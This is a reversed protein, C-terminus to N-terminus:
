EKPEENDKAKEAAKKNVEYKRGDATVVVVTEGKDLWDLVDSPTLARETAQYKKSGDEGKVTKSSRFTLGKLFKRDIAQEAM